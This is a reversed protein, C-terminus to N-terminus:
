RVYLILRMRVVDAPSTKTALSKAHASRGTTAARVFGSVSQLVGGMDGRAYSSAASFLGQSAELALNPEKIKGETSYQSPM